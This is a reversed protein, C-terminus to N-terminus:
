EDWFFMYQSLGTNDLGMLLFYSFLLVLVLAYILGRDEIRKNEFAKPVFLVLSMGFFMGIRHFEGVITVMSMFVVAFLGLNILTRTEVEKKSEPNILIQAFVWLSTVMAFGGLGFQSSTSYQSANISYRDSSSLFANVMSAVNDKFIFCVGVLVVCAIWQKWGAKLYSSLYALCFVLASSHFGSAILVLIFFPVPRRELIYPYCFLLVSTALAHRLMQCEVGFYGLGFFIAFSMVPYPSYRYIYLCVSLVVFVAIAFLYVHYDTSIFSFLKTGVYFLPEKWFYASFVEVLPMNLLREFTPIYVLNTDVGATYRSRFGMVFLCAIFMAVCYALKHKDKIISRFFFDLSVALIALICLVIVSIM